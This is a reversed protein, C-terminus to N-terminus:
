ARGKKRYRKYGQLQVISGALGSCVKQDLGILANPKDHNVFNLPLESVNVM